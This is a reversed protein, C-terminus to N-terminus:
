RYWAWNTYYCVVKYQETDSVGIDNSIDNVKDTTEPYIALPTETTHISPYSTTPRKHVPPTVVIDNDDEEEVEPHNIISESHTPSFGLLENKITNLLPHKGQGCRCFVYELMLTNKLNNCDAQYSVLFSFLYRNRFDDLDLAWVMGGALNLSKIFHMKKKITYVDDFSVWQDGKYAYPGMRELPDKVVM